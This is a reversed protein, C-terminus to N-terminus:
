LFRISDTHVKRAMRLLNINATLSSFGNGVFVEAHQGIMMDAALDVEVEPAHWHALNDCHEIFDGRRLHLALLGPIGTAPATRPRYSPDDWRSVDGFLHMNRAVIGKVLPSWSFNNLIPSEQLLDWTPLIRDGFSSFTFVHDGTMTVCTDDIELLYKSFSVLIEKTSNAPGRDQEILGLKQRLEGTDVYKRREPPCVEDYWDYSVSRPAEWPAREGAKSTGTGPGFRGGAVPGGLFANLPIINSRYHKGDLQVPETSSMNWMYPQFVYARNSMYALQASLLIDQLQNNFGINHYPTSFRLFRGDKGEPWPLNMKHQPLSKEYASIEKYTPLGHYHKRELYERVRSFALFLFLALFFPGSRALYSMVPSIRGDSTWFGAGLIGGLSKTEADEGIVMWEPCPTGTRLPFARMARELGQVDTGHMFLHNSGHMFMLGTGQVDFTRRGALVFEGGAGGNTGFEFESPQRRLVDRGYRNLARGQSLVIVSGRRSPLEADPRQEEALAEADAVIRSDLGLYTYLAWALRKAASLCAEDQPVVVTIPSNSLLIRSIPGALPPAHTKSSAKWMGDEGKEFVYNDLPTEMEVHQSDITVSNPVSSGKPPAYSMAQVNTTSIISGNNVRVRALRGPVEVASVRWGGMSGSEHPWIVTLTFDKSAPAERVSENVLSSLVEAREPDTF